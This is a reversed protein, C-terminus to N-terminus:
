LGFFRRWMTKSLSLRRETPPKGGGGAGAGIEFADSAGGADRLGAGDAGDIFKSGHNAACDGAFAQLGDDGFDFGGAGFGEDGIEAEEFVTELEAAVDLGQGRFGSSALPEKRQLAPSEGTEPARMKASRDGKGSTGVFYTPFGPMKRKGRSKLALVGLFEPLARDHADVLGADGNATAENIKIARHIEFDEMLQFGFRYCIIECYRKEERISLDMRRRPRRALFASERVRLNGPDFGNDRRERADGFHSREPSGGHIQEVGIDAMRSSLADELALDPTAVRLRDMRRDPERIHATEGREGVAHWRVGEDRKEIAEEIALHGRDEGM